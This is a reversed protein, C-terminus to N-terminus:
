RLVSNQKWNPAAWSVSLLGPQLADDPGVDDTSPAMAPCVRALTDTCAGHVWHGRAARAASTKSPCRPSSAALLNEWEKTTEVDANSFSQVDIMMATNRQAGEGGVRQPGHGRRATPSPNSAQPSVGAAAPAVGAILLAPCALWCLCSSSLLFALSPLGGEVPSQDM